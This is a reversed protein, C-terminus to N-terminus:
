AQAMQKVLLKLLRPVSVVFITHVQTDTHKSVHIGMFATYAKLDGHNLSDRRDFRSLQIFTFTMRKARLM